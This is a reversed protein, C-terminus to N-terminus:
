GFTLVLQPKNAPTATNNSDYYNAKSPSASDSSDRVM